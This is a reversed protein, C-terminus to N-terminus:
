HEKIKPKPPVYAARSEWFLPANIISKYQRLPPVALAEASPIEIKTYSEGAQNTESMLKLDMVNWATLGLLACGTVTFLLNLPPNILAKM